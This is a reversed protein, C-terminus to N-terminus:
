DSDFDIEVRSLVLTGSGLKVYAKIISYCIFPIENSQTGVSNFNLKSSFQIPNLMEKIAGEKVKELEAEEENESEEEDDDVKKQESELRKRKCRRSGM